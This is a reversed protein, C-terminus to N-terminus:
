LKTDSTSIERRQSTTELKETKSQCFRKLLNCRQPVESFKCRLICKFVEKFNPHWFGYIVPNIFSNSAGCLAAWPILAYLGPIAYTLVYPIICLVYACVIVFLNKTVKMQRNNIDKTSGPAKASPKSKKYKIQTQGSKILFRFISIYSFIIVILCTVPLLTLRLATYYLTLENDSNLTCVRYRKSYGLAGVGFFPLIFTVLAVYTWSLIVMLSINRKNYLKLYANKSKTLLYFRNLAIMALNVVSASFMIYTLGSLAACFGHSFPLDDSIYTAALFPLTSCGMFDSIALNVVFANTTTQLKRSVFVSSVVLGNGFMGIVTIILYGLAILRRQTPDDFYFLWETTLIENSITGYTSTNDNDM